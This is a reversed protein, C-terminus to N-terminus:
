VLYKIPNTNLNTCHAAFNSFNNQILEFLLDITFQESEYHGIDAIIIQDEADFFQHYKFDASIFIDAGKEIAASLLFSGSGGCVAVKQVPKNLLETHRICATKMCDQIHKLFDRAPKAQDTEGIVGAGIESNAPDSYRLIEVQKLGLQQAIKENVGHRLVNDLNTHIAYIAIGSRIAKIVTREIYTSGTLRKLGSFVIPHHAVIVNCGKEIAEDVIAETSDLCCLVGKIEMAPDGVILGSNDYSEQLHAPAIGEFFDVLDRVKSM